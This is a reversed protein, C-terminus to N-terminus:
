EMGSCFCRHICCGHELIGGIMASPVNQEAEEQLEGLSPHGFSPSGWEHMCEIVHVFLSPGTHVDASPRDKSYVTPSLKVEECIMYRKM